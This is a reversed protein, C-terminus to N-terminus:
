AAQVRIMWLQKELTATIGRLLDATVPDLDEIRDTRERVLGVVEDLITTLSTVLSNGAQPGEALSTLPTRAAVTATRGDPSHGLAAAREGIADAAERWTDIMDDLQLHLSRFHRGVVNWHAHKGILALDILTVLLTQLEIGILEGATHRPTPHHNDPWVAHSMPDRRGPHSGNIADAGDFNDSHSM